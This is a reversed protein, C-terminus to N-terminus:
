KMALGPLDRAPQRNAMAQKMTSEILNSVSRNQRDAEREIELKLDSEIQAVVQERRM